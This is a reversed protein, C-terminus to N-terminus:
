NAVAAGKEKALGAYLQAHKGVTVTADFDAAIGRRASEGMRARLKEDRLLVMLRQSMAQMDLRNVLFGSRGESVIEAIGGTDTAVVPKSSVAAELVSVPLGEWLSTLVFVDIASLIKPIDTRWGTLIVEKEMRLKRITREIKSRLAGDGVLIFKTDPLIRKVLCALKIFDLPSKQPKFCAVMGVVPDKIDIGLTKRIDEAGANFESYDIGYRVLIYKGKTGIRSSLGKQRDYDSVVILKDCLRAAVRELLLFLSRMIAPQYDNFSWGHVTHIIVKAGALRAAFRGLIGAKSSHTHVIHINNKKIFRIIEFLALLDWLPIIPRELFRSKKLTLGNIASAEPILFGERATFLFPNFKEQDIHKILSLLQKQAGGLELKTILYLLNIRQM